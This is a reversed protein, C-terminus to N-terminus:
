PKWIEPIATLPQNLVVGSIGVAVVVLYFVFAGHLFYYAYRNYQRVSCIGQITLILLMPCLFLATRPVGFPYKQLAGALALELFVVLAITPVSCVRWKSEKIVHFFGAFMYVFGFLMFIRAIKRFVKPLEVFWRSFLNNVGEGFTQFFDKISHTAIFYDNFGNTVAEVPRLRVDFQYSVAVCVCISLLYVLIYRAQSRDKKFDLCLNWLPFVLFFYAPYSFFVALPLLALIAMYRLGGFSRLQVQSYLFWVFLGSLLVDMSYQKLEASYYILPISACWCLIFTLYKPPDKLERRAVRLWIAFAVMMCVFPFFRLSLTYNGFYKAFSQIFFLYVRPFVQGTQLTSDFLESPKLFRISDLVALEDNWLSRAALFHVTCMSVYWTVLLIFAARYFFNINLVTM